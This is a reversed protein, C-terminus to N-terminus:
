RQYVIEGRCVTLQVQGRLTKGAFTTNRGKSYFREPDVTWERELDVACLDAPEGLALNGAPIRLLRAPNKAM